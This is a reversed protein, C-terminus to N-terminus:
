LHKMVTNFCLTSNRGPVIAGHDTLTKKLVDLSIDSVNVNSLIAIAAATAAAQGMAMCSAKVRLASNSERDSSICRGAMMLNSFNKSIMSSLRITPTRDHKIYQIYAPENDRHIDIFWYSYCVSDDFLKGSCYDRANLESLGAIRRGERPAIAPAAAMIKEGNKMQEFIMKRATIESETISHSDTVNLQVHNKNDGYNLIADDADVAPYYRLTGPQFVGHGDGAIFEAGAFAAVDGDGTCDIYIKATLEKLGTKTAIKINTIKQANVTVDVASQGYYVSVGSELLMDDIVKAAAVPNVKVGYQAHNKYEADMDPIYAFGAQYLRMVYEWAIGRIVMKKEQIFPNNFQDISNNGLVTLIGGPTNYKEIIATKVGMRAAAVAACFGASGAGCVILDYQDM